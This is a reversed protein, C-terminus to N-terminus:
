ITSRPDQFQRLFSRKICSAIFKAINVPTNALPQPRIQSNAEQLLDLCSFHLCCDNCVVRSDTGTGLIAPPLFGKLQQPRDIRLIQLAIHDCECAGDAGAVRIIQIVSSQHHDHIMIM